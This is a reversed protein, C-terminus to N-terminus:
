IFVVFVVPGPLAYLVPTVFLPSSTPTIVNLGVASVGLVTVSQTYIAPSAGSGLVSIQFSTTFNPTGNLNINISADEGACIQTNAAGTITGSCQAWVQSSFMMLFGLLLYTSKVFISSRKAPSQQLLALQQTTSLQTM